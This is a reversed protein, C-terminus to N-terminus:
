LVVKRKVKIFKKFYYHKFIVLILILVQLHIQNIVVATILLMTDVVIMLTWKEKFTMEKTEVISKFHKKYLKSNQLKNHIKKSSKSYMYLALIVFPTTPLIPLFIGIIGIILATTGITFFLIKMM